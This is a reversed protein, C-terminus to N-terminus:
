RHRADPGTARPKLLIAVIPVTLIGPLVRLALGLASNFIGPIILTHGWDFGRKTSRAVQAPSLAPLIHRYLASEADMRDHFKTNVPGPAVACFRVGRGREEYALARTLSIVYAKSAYYAAQYPGPALGGLSAVNIIGGRGRVLMAPLFARTLTDLATINLETLQRLTEPNELAYHGSAGIGANNILIDAFHDTRALEAAIHRAAGAETIDVAITRVDAQLESRLTQAASELKERTRAVLFVTCDPGWSVRALELGIGESGGTILVAPRSGPLQSIAETDRRWARRKWADILFKM